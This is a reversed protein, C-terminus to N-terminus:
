ILNKRQNKKRAVLILGGGKETWNFLNDIWFVYSCLKKIYEKSTLLGLIGESGTYTLNYKIKRSILPLYVFKHWIYGLPYGWYYCKEVTLGNKEFLEILETKSYRRYHSSYDDNIDWYNKNAPVSIVCIGDSKLSSFFHKVVTQDDKIHELTEGSVIVDYYSQHQKLFLLSDKTYYFTIFQKKLNLYNQAYEVAEKAIDIGTCRYIGKKALRALLTGSGCGFDLVRGTKKRKKIENILLSERYYNRPGSFEPDKGWEMKKM